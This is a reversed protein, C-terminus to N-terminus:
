IPPAATLPQFDGSGGPAGPPIIGVAGPAPAPRSNAVPVFPPLVPGAIQAPAPSQPVSNGPPLGTQSAVGLSSDGLEFAGSGALPGTGSASTSYPHPSTPQPMFDSTGFNDVFWSDSPANEIAPARAPSVALTSPEQVVAIQETPMIGAASEDGLWHRSPVAALAASDAGFGPGVASFMAIGVLTGIQESVPVRDELVQLDLIVKPITRSRSAKRRM